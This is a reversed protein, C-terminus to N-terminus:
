KKFEEAIEEAYKKIVEENEGEVLIRALNETGSYRVYVRGKDELKKEVEKIKKLVLPLEEIPKKEEVELNLLIQPFKKMKILESLKKNNNKIIELVHLAAITGDGTTSSDLFILHGSNEGGFNYGNSKMEDFVYRDGVDTRVVNIKNKKMLVDFGINSMVTSVVTNKSLRNQKNLELACLAMIQDGDVENGKEDVFIVRDADGDLAVGLDAKEKLVREKLKEPHLSGSEKNINLGNPQNHIPVVDAGLEKFIQPSVHYAAGHACDVVIKLGELSNNNIAAKAFEIYRGKADDIRNAKGIKDAIINDHNFNNSFVLGEIKEEVEDSLKYGNRDFFKIGNHEAPNHSASIVIGADAGFSKTLHAIAPTPMPGVLLVDAGMSTIGSTLSYELMYGSIRTDKGILIVPKKKGNGLVIAAAKGLKLAIDATMPYQNAIGRVGDTGFLQRM